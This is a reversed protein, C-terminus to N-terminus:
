KQIRGMSKLRVSVAQQTVGLADALEEQTQTPDEDLLAELEKDEYKKPQGCRPKGEVSFDGNMFRRFWERCSEDTLANDSYVEVLMRHREPASKQWNFCFVLVEQLYQKTLVFNSMNLVTFFLTKKKHFEFRYLSFKISLYSVERFGGCNATM